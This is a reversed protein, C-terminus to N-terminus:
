IMTFLFKRTGIHLLSLLQIMHVWGPIPFKPITFHWNFELEIKSYPPVSKDLNLFLNTGRIDVISQNKLNIKKNDVLMKDIIDGNTFAISDLRRNRPEGITNYNQYLRIVINKLTDPSNNNYTIHEEGKLLLESPIIHAKIKYDSFNQWYNKGPMGDYSRTGKQYARKVNLPIYLNDQPFIYNSFFSPAFILLLFIYSNRFNM